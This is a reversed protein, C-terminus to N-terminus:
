GFPSGALFEGVEPRSILEGQTQLNCFGISGMLNLVLWQEPLPLDVFSVGGAVVDEFTAIDTSFLGHLLLIFGKRTAVDKAELRELQALDRYRARQMASARVDRALAGANISGPAVAARVLAVAFSGASLIFKASHEDFWTLSCRWSGEHFIVAPEDAEYFQSSEAIWQPRISVLALLRGEKVADAIVTERAAALSLVLQASVARVERDSRELIRQFERADAERSRGNQWRDFASMRDHIRRMRGRDQELSEAVGLDDALTEGCFVGFAEIEGADHLSLTVSDRLVGGIEPVYENDKYLKAM